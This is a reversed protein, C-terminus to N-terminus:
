RRARSRVVRRPAAAAIRAERAAALMDATPEPRSPLPPPEEEQERTTTGKKTVCTIALGPETATDLEYHSVARGTPDWGVRVIPRTLDDQPVSVVVARRGDGLEVEIGPPYPTVVRRFV